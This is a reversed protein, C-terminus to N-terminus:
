KRRRIALLTTLGAFGLMAMSAPEPVGAVTFYEGPTNAFNFKGSSSGTYPGGGGVNGTGVALGPLFQNALYGDGGGNIDALVMINGGAYGIASLPIVLEYGTTTNAGSTAGSLAAGAAGMTSAHNNNLYISMVGGDSGAAIGLSSEALAGVYAGTNAILNYEESYLTGPTVGPSSSYVNGDYAFTADFGPSFVSGNMNQLTGTAPANLVNQGGAAGGAIFVNLHNGNAETNGALFLYLNGGSIRGYAADLESGGASDAGGAANGFGTNITQIALPSGYFSPSVTGNLNQAYVVATGLFALAAGTALITKFKM